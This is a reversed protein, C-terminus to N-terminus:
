AGSGGEWALYLSPHLNSSLLNWIGWMHSMVILWIGVKDRGNLQPQVQTNLEYNNLM